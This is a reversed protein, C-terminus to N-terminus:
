RRVHERADDHVCRSRGHDLRRLLRDDAAARAPLVYRAHRGADPGVLGRRGASIDPVYYSANIIGYTHESTGDLASSLTLWGWDGTIPNGTMNVAIVRNVPIVGDVALGYSQGDLKVWIDIRPTTAKFRIQSGFVNVSNDGSAGLLNNLPQPIPNYGNASDDRLTYGSELRINDLAGVQGVGDNTVTGLLYNNATAFGAPPACSPSSGTVIFLPSALTANAASLGPNFYFFPILKGRIAVTHPADPLGSFVVQTAPAGYSPVFNTWAGGDVRYQAEGGGDNSFVANISLSTGTAVLECTSDVGQPEIYATPGRVGTVGGGSYYAHTWDFNM